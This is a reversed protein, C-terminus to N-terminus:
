TKTFVAELNHGDPDRVFAAFYDEEYEPRLGPAGNDMGGNALATSHFDKVSQESRAAFAIHAAKTLPASENAQRIEFMDHISNGFGVVVGEIEFVVKFELTRFIAEYFNRSERLSAVKIQIHDFMGMIWGEM